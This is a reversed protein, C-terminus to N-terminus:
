RAPSMPPLSSCVLLRAHPGAPTWTQLQQSAGKDLHCKQAAMPWPPWRMAGTLVAGSRAALCRRPGVFHTCLAPVPLPVSALSSPPFLAVLLSGDVTRGLTGPSGSNAATLGALPAPEVPSGHSRQLVMRTWTPSLIIRENTQKAAWVSAPLPRLHM